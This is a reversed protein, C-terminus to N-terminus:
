ESGQRLLTARYNHYVYTQVDVVDVWRGQLQVTTGNVTIREGQQYEQRKVLEQERRDFEKSLVVLTAGIKQALKHLHNIRPSGSTNFESSGLIEWGGEAHTKVRTDHNRLLVNQISPAPQGESNLESVEIQVIYNRSYYDTSLRDLISTCGCFVSCLLCFWRMGFALTINLM